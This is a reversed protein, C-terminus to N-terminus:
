RLACAGSVCSGPALACRLGGGCRGDCNEGLTSPLGVCAGESSGFNCYGNACGTDATCTEGVGKPTACETTDVPCFLGAQCLWDAGGCPTGVPGPVHCKPASGAYDCALGTKCAGGVCDEGDNGAAVCHNTLADCGLNAGCGVSASALCAEGELPAVVCVQAMDCAAGPACQGMVCPFGAGPPAKCLSPSQSADCLLKGECDDYSACVEGQKGKPQCTSPEASPACAMQAGCGAGCKAGLAPGDACKSGDCVLGSACQVTDACAEGKLGPASCTGQTGCVLDAACGDDMVCPDGPKAPAVCMGGACALGKGCRNSVCPLGAGPRAVCAGGAQPSDCAGQGDACLLGTGYFSCPSGLQARDVFTALCSALRNRQTPLACTKGFALMDEACAAAQIEDYDLAGLVVAGIYVSIATECQRRQRTECSDGVPDPPCGCSSTGECISAATATCYTTMGNQAADLGTEAAADTAVDETSSADGADATGSPSPTPTDSSSCALPALAAALVITAALLTAPATRLIM